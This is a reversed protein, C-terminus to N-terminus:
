NVWGRYDREFRYHSHPYRPCNPALPHNAREVDDSLEAAVRLGDDEVVTGLHTRERHKAPGGIAANLQVVDRGSFGNLVSEDLAEVALQSVLTEVLVVELRENFGPANESFPALPVVHDARM